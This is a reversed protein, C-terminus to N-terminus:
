VLAGPHVHDRIVKEFTRRTLDPILVLFVRGTETRTPLHIEVGGMVITEHGQTVRGGFGGRSRKRKTWFTQDLVVAYEEPPGGIKSSSVAKMQYFLALRIQLYVQRLTKGPCGTQHCAQEFPIKQIFWYLAKVLQVHNLNIPLLSALPCLPIEPVLPLAGPRGQQLMGAKMKAYMRARKSGRWSKKANCIKYKKIPNGKIDIGVQQPLGRHFCYTEAVGGSESVEFKNTEHGYKCLVPLALLGVWQLFIVAQATSPWLNFGATDSDM